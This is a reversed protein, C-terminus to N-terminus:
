IHLMHRMVVWVQLVFGITVLLHFIEHFGFVHPIPDPREIGYVVGGAIFCLGGLLLVFMPGVGIAATMDPIAIVGGIGFALYSAVVIRKPADIWAISFVVGLLALVWEVGLVIDSTQRGHLSAVWFSTFVTAIGVYIMAHDARRAWISWGDPWPARHYLGSAAFVGTLAGGYLLAAVEARGDPAFWYLAVTMVLTVPFAVLHNLGRLHPLHPTPIGAPLLHLHRGAALQLQESERGHDPRMAM